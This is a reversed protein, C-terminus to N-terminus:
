PTTRGYNASVWVLDYIDIKCDCNLDACLNWNPEDDMTGYAKAVTRLDFINVVADSNLDGPIAMYKYHFLLNTTDHAVVIGKDTKLVTLVPQLDCELPVFGVHWIGSDQPVMFTITALVGSGNSSPAPPVSKVALWLSGEDDDVIKKTVQYPSKLFPGVTIDTADLVTTNYTLKLEFSYLNVVSAITINVTFKKVLTTATYATPNAELRPKTSLCEYKGDFAVHPIPSAQQNSLETDTLDLGCTVNNPYIPDYTIKFTLQALTSSGNFAPAPKTAVVALWYRGLDERTENMAVFYNTTWVSPPTIKAGVLDLLNTDWHLRFDFGYLKDVTIKINVTFTSGYAPTQPEVSAPDVYLLANKPLMLPYRDTNNVSIGRSTDGIGDGGALNQSPGKKLDVGTYDSWYNGGSPYGNDWSNAGASVTVQDHNWVFSNHFMTNNFSDVVWIGLNNNMITNESLINRCSSYFLGIGLGGGEISNRSLTNNFVTYLEFGFENDALTNESLTNNNGSIDLGVWNNTITNKYLRNNNASPGLYISYANNTLMNASLVNSSFGDIRIGYGALAGKGGLAASTVISDSINCDNVGDLYIGSDPWGSNQVTLSSVNVNDVTVHMVTGTSGGDIVTNEKDAGCINLSKYVSVHEYYIGVDILIRHGDLTELADIAGQITTYSLGTDINHVPTTDESYFTNLAGTLYNISLNSKGDNRWSTALKVNLATCSVGILLM